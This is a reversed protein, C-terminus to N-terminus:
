SVLITREQSARIRFGFTSELRDFANGSIRSTLHLTFPSAKGYRLIVTARPGLTSRFASLKPTSRATIPRTSYIWTGSYIYSLETLAFPDPLNFVKQNEGHKWPYVFLRGPSDAFDSDEHFIDIAQDAGGKVGYIKYVGKQLSAM